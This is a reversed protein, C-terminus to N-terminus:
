DKVSAITIRSSADTDFAVSRSPVSRKTIRYGGVRIAQGDALSQVELAARVKEDGEKYLKVAEAKDVRLQERNDLAELLKPSEIVKEDLATQPQEQANM